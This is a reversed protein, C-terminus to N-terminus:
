IVTMSECWRKSEAARKSFEIEAIETAKKQLVDVILVNKHNRVLVYRPFEFVEKEEETVV